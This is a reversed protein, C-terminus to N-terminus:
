ENGKLLNQIDKGKNIQFIYETKFSASRPNSLVYAKDYEKLEKIAACWKTRSRTMLITVDKNNIRNKIIEFVFKQSPLYDNGPIKDYIDNYSVSHYPFFEVLAINKTFYDGEEAKGKGELINKIKNKYKDPFLYKLRSWYPEIKEKNYKENFKKMEPHYDFEFFVSKNMKLNDLLVKNFGYEKRKESDYFKKYAIDFGPNLSLILLKANKIDGIFHQPIVGLELGHKNGLNNVFKEIFEKDKEAIYKESELELGQWVNEM